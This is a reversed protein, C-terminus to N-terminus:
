RQLEYRPLFFLNLSKYFTRSIYLFFLALQKIDVRMTPYSRRVFRLHVNPIVDSAASPTTHSSRLIRRVRTPGDSSGVTM